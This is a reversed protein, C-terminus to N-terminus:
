HLSISTHSGGSKATAKTTVTPGSHQSTQGSEATVGTDALVGAAAANAPTGGTSM